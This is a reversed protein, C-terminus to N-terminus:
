LVFSIECFSILTKFCFSDNLWSFVFCVLLVMVLAFLLVFSLVCFVVPFVAPRSVVPSFCGYFCAVVFDATKVRNKERKGCFLSFCSM